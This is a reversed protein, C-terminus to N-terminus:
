NTWTQCFSEKFALDLRTEAARCEVNYYIMLLSLELIFDLLILNICSGCHKPSSSAPRPTETQQMCFRSKRGKVKPAEVALTILM